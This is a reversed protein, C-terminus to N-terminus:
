GARMTRSGRDSDAFGGLMFGALERKCTTLDSNDVEYYGIDIMYGWAPSKPPARHMHASVRAQELNYALPLTM